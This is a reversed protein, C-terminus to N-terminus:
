RREGQMRTLERTVADALGFGGQHAMTKAYEDIMLSRFMGIHGVLWGGAFTGLLTAILGYLKVVQAIQTKTFGLDLLFPNFMVGMFADGLKYLVVFVLVHLWM